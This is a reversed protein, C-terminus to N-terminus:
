HTEVYPGERDLESPLYGNEETMFYFDAALPGSYCKNKELPDVDDPLNKWHRWYLHAYM